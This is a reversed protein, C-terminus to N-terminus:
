SVLQWSIFDIPVATKLEMINYIFVPGFDEIKIECIQCSNSIEKKRSCLPRLTLSVWGGPGM